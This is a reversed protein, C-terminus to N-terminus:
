QASQPQSTLDQAPTTLIDWWGEVRGMAYTFERLSMGSKLVMKRVRGGALFILEARGRDFTWLDDPVGLEKM